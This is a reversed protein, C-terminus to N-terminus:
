FLRYSDLPLGNKDIYDNYCDIAKQNERLWAEEKAKKVAQRLGIEAAESLSLGLEKAERILEIDLSLNTPKKKRSIKNM